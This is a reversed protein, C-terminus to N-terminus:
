VDRVYMVEVVGLSVKTRESKVFGKAEYFKKARENKDFVWLTAREVNTCRILEEEELIDKFAVKWSETQIYALTAEDGSLVRRILYKDNM